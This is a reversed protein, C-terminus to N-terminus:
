PPPRTALCPCPRPALRSITHEPGGADAGRRRSARCAGANLEDASRRLADALRDDVFGRIMHEVALPLSFPVKYSQDHRVGHIRM